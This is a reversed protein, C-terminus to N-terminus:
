ALSQSLFLFLYVDKSFPITCSSCRMFLDFRYITALELSDNFASDCTLTRRRQLEPWHHHLDQMLMYYQILTAKNFSCPISNPRCLHTQILGAWVRYQLPAFDDLLISALGSINPCDGGLWGSWDIRSSEFIFWIRALGAWGCQALRSM